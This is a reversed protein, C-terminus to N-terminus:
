ILLVVSHLSALTKHYSYEPPNIHKSPCQETLFSPSVPSPSMLSLMQSNYSANRTYVPSSFFQVDKCPGCADNEMGALQAGFGSSNHSEVFEIAM